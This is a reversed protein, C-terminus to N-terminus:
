APRAAQGIYSAPLLSDLYAMAEKEIMKLIDLKADERFKAVYRDIWERIKEPEPSHEEEDREPPFMERVVEKIIGPTVQEPKAGARKKIENWCTQQREPDRLNALPRLASEGLHGSTTAVEPVNIGLQDLDRFQNLRSRGLDYKTRGWTAFSRAEDGDGFEFRYLKRDHFITIAAAMEWDAQMGKQRANAIRQEQRKAEDRDEQDSVPM